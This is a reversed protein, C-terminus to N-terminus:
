LAELLKPVSILREQNVDIVVSKPFLMAGRLLAEHIGPQYYPDFLSGSEILYDIKHERLITLVCKLQECKKVARDLFPDDWLRLLKFPSLYYPPTDDILAFSANQLGRERISAALLLGRRDIELSLERPLLQGQRLALPLPNLENGLRLFNIFVLITGFLSLSILAKDGTTYRQLAKYLVYTGLGNVALAVPGFHRLETNPGLGAIFLVLFGTVLAILFKVERGLIKWLFPALLLGYALPEYSFIRRLKEGIFELSLEGMGADFFHFGDLWSPGLYESPFVKALIPFVPNGTWFYNRLLYPTLVALTVAGGRLLDMPRPRYYVLAMLLPAAYTIKTGVAVGMLAASLLTRDREKLALLFWSLAIWDNKAIFGKHQLSARALMALLALGLLRRPLSDGILRCFFVSFACVGLAFTLLQASVQLHLLGETTSLDFFQALPFYLYDAFSAHMLQTASPLHALRGLKAWEVIGYLHYNLPDFYSSPYCSVVFGFVLYLAVPWPPVETSFFNRDQIFARVANALGLCALAWSSVSVPLFFGTVSVFLAFTAAGVLAKEWVSRLGLKFVDGLGSFALFVFSASLLEIALSM